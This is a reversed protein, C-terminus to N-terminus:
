AVRVLGRYDVPSVDIDWRYKVAMGDLRHVNSAEITPANSGKLRFFNISSFEKKCALFWGNFGALRPEVIVSLKQEEEIGRNYEGVVSSAELSFAPSTIVHQPQIGLLEKTSEDFVYEQSYMKELANGLDTKFEATKTVINNHDAHFIERDEFSVPNTKLLDYVDNGIKRDYAQAISAILATYAGRKDSLLTSRSVSTIDGYTELKANALEGFISNFHKYEEGPKVLNPTPMVGASILDTNRFDTLESEGVWKRWTGPSKDWKEILLSNAVNRFLDPFDIYNFFAQITKAKAAQKSQELRRDNSFDLKTIDEMGAPSLERLAEVAVDYLTKETRGSIVKAVDEVAKARANLTM